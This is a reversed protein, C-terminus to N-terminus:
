FCELLHYESVYKEVITYIFNCAKDQRIITVRSFKKMNLLFEMCATRAKTYKDLTGFFIGDNAHPNSILEVGIGTMSKGSADSETTTPTESNVYKFYGSVTSHIDIPLKLKCYCYAVIPLIGYHFGFNFLDMTTTRAKMYFDLIDNDIIYETIEDYVDQGCTKIFGLELENM